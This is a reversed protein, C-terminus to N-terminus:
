YSIYGPFNQPLVDEMTYQEFQDVTYLDTFGTVINVPNSLIGLFYGGIQKWSTSIKTTPPKQPYWTILKKDLHYGSLAGSGDGDAGIVGKKQVRVWMKVKFNSDWTVPVNEFTFVKSKSNLPDSVSSWFGEDGWIETGGSEIAVKYVDMQTLKGSCSGASITIPIDIASTQIDGDGEVKNCEWNDGRVNIVLKSIKTQNDSKNYDLGMKVRGLGWWIDVNYEPIFFSNAPTGEHQHWSVINAGREVHNATSPKYMVLDYYYENGGEMIETFETNVYGPKKFVLKKSGAVANFSFSGSQSTMGIINGNSYVDVSYLGNGEDDTVRGSFYAIASPSMTKDLTATTLPAIVYDTEIARAYGPRTFRLTYTGGNLLFGYKGQVDTKAELGAGEIRVYAGPLVAGASNKVTGSLEARKDLTYARFFLDQNGASNYTFTESQGRFGTASVTVTLSVSSPLSEFAVAGNFSDYAGQGTTKTQSVGSNNNKLTVVAGNLPNGLNDNVSVNLYPFQVQKPKEVVTRVTEAINNSKNTESLSNNQDAKVIFHVQTGIALGDAIQGTLLVEKAANKAINGSTGEAIKIPQASNNGLYYYLAVGANKVLEVNNNKLFAHEQVIGHSYVIKSKAWYDGMTLGIDPATLSIATLKVNDLENSETILNDPDVAAKIQYNVAPNLSAPVIWSYSQSSLGKPNLNAITKVATPTPSNIDTFFAVKINSIKVNGNNRIKATINVKQGAKPKVSSVKLTELFFNIQAQNVGAKIEAENNKENTEAIKKDSDVIVRFPVSGSMNVPLTYSYVLTKSAKKSISPITVSYINVDKFFFQVKVNVAKGAGLNRIVARLNIKDGGKYSAPTIKLDAAAVSLDPILPIVMIKKEAQIKYNKLKVAETKILGEPATEEEAALEDGVTVRLIQNGALEAPIKYSLSANAYSNKAIASLTKEGIKTENIFFRVIVKAAAATGKNEVKAKFTATTGVLIGAPAITINGSTIQLSAPVADAASGTSVAQSIKACSLFIIVAALGILLKKM